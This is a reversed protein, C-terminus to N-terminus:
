ECERNNASNKLLFSTNPEPVFTRLVVPFIGRSCSVTFYASSKAIRKGDSVSVFLWQSRIKHDYNGYVRLASVYVVLPFLRGISSRGGYQHNATFLIYDLEDFLVDCFFLLLILSASLKRKTAGNCLVLYM